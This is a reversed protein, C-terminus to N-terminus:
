PLYWKSNKSWYVDYNEMFDKFSEIVPLNNAKAFVEYQESSYFEFIKELKTDFVLYCDVCDSSNFGQFNACLKKNALAFKTLFAQRGGGTKSDEFYTQAGDINSVQYGNGIPIRYSDGFGGDNWYSFHNILFVIGFFFCLYSFTLYKYETLKKPWTLNTLKALAFIITQSLGAYILSYIFIIILSIILGFIGFM